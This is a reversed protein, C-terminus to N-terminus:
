EDWMMDGLRDAAASARAIGGSLRAALYSYREALEPDLRAAEQFYIDAEEYRDLEYLARALGIVPAPRGPMEEIALRYWTIATEYDGMLFAINGVNIGARDYGKKVAIQFHELANKYVGYRAYLIGLSNHQRGDGGDDGFRSMLREARPEVERSVVLSILTDFVRSVEEAAPKKGRVTVEPVAAPPYKGWAEALTYFLEDGSESGRFLEIGGSWARLFGERMMSVRVPVWAEEQRTIFEMTEGYMGRASREDSSMIFAVLVEDELPILASPVGVSELIAAYLVAMDDSDGSRYAITQHPYQVYDQLEPEGRFQDYPTQPDRSWAIEALRLGEFLGLAYQLNSDHESRAHSRVLGALFKSFDLVAPDNPSVFSALIKPDEWVLANRHLLSITTDVRSTRPEGLLEYQIIVEGSVRQNESVEMVGDSFAAYLPFTISKGRSLYDTEGCLAPGSTYGEALFSVRVRRIEASESNKVTISGFSSNRYDGSLIPFVPVSDASELSARGESAGGLNIRAALSLSLGQYFSGNEQLYDNWGAGASLSFGPSFRFGAEAGAKWYLNGTMTTDSGRQWLGMYAGIGAYASLRLRALPYFFLGPGLSVGSFLLSSDMNSAALPIYNIDIGMWPSLFDLFEADLHISGGGGVGFTGTDAMPIMAGPKASLRLQQGFLTPLPCLFLGGVLFALVMRGAKSLSKM